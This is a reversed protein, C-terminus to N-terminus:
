SESVLCEPDPTSRPGRAGPHRPLRRLHRLMAALAVGYSITSAIAAGYVGVLPLLALLLVVTLIAALGQAWAVAGPHRRGRLLDGVVQGCALFVSGPTLVWLLPVAGRYAAGFVLPVMWYAVAALPVLIAVALGASGLVAFQQLQRTRGTAERQSALRPFAVNGIASVIPLPLLSLSVAIAYRGLDAPPVTQSLVLQDLNANLAAPTLAAIQAAGYAALPRVLSARAHGPALGVRRCCIYAWGLQLAMTTALVVLAADLSLMRLRWLTVIAILSLVPQFLRLLNWRRLDRAQLSFTYSANVFAVVSAGFAIRYATAVGAEGHSLVPALLMGAAIAFAGTTLMMLRSTAVYERAHEPERAVYFCLAAPQGMGGVMLALGFWSTVAAYEGRVTPGVARAIIVGGLGAAVMGAVNFGATRTVSRAFSGRRSATAVGWLRSLGAHVTM